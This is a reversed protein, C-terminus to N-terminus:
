SRGFLSRFFAGIRLRRGPCEPYPAFSIIKTGREVWLPVPEESSKYDIRVEVGSGCSQSLGIHASSQDAHVSQPGWDELFKSFPYAACPNADTCGWLQYARQYNHARLLDIFVTAQQEEGYNRFIGYFILGAVLLCGLVISSIKVIRIRKEHRAEAEGYAELYSSM